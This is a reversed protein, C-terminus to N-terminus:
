VFKLFVENSLLIGKRTLRLDTEYSCGSGVIEILGEEQLAAIENQYHSLMNIGYRKLFSEISIGGTKRLGLFIAESLAQDEPIHGTGKVPSKDESVAKLYEELDCTNCFRKGYVFSHAGLGAGFYEGRDWYNLNHRCQYGPMAFNSIEYHSYGKSVLYDITHEYMEIIKDEDPLRVRGVFDGRVGRKWLPTYDGGKFFPSPERQQLANCRSTPPNKLYEHLGTGEEVTLEYTSIHEPKLMAAKELTERWSEIDQGPIGYILDIGINEFGADRALCVAQGAEESTHIRGLLALEDDNFSQIGVSLRNIGASRMAALKHKDVTGPNAEVTAEVGDYGGKALPPHPPSFSCHSFIHRILNTLKNASLATPTGGGIFLTSIQTKEPINRIEKNLAEIYADATRPGYIGSVFDCYICRKLCFPIHVYLSTMRLKLM